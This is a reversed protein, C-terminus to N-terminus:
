QKKTIIESNQGKEPRILLNHDKKLMLNESILSHTAWATFKLCDYTCFM